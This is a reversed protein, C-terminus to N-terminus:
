EGIKGGLIKPLAPKKTLGDSSPPKSSNQSNLGLRCRLAANETRLARNEAKLLTNEAELDALRLLVKSLLAQLLLIDDPLEKM